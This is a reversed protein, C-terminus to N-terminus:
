SASSPRLVGRILALNAVVGDLPCQEEAFRYYVLACSYAQTDTSGRAIAEVVRPEKLALATGVTGVSGLGAVWILMHQCALPNAGVYLIGVDAKRGDSLRAYPDEPDPIGPEEPCAHARLRWCRVRDGARTHAEGAPAFYFGQVGYVRQTFAQNIAESLQHSGPGGIVVLDRDIWAPAPASPDARVLDLGVAWEGLAERVVGAALGDYDPTSPRQPQGPAAGVVMQGPREVGGRGLRAFPSPSPPRVGPLPVVRRHAQAYLTHLLPPWDLRRTEGDLTLFATEPPDWEGSLRTLRRMHPEEREPTRRVCQLTEHPATAPTPTDLRPPGGAAGWRNITARDVHAGREHMREEVQRYSLPYAVYWHVRTLIIDQVLHAGTFSIM